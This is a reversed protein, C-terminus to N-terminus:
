IFIWYETQQTAYFQSIYCFLRFYHMLIMDTKETEQTDTTSDRRTCFTLSGTHVELTM